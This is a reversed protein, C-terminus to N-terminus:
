KLIHSNCDFILGISSWPWYWLEYVKFNAILICVIYKYIFFTNLPWEPKFVIHSAHKCFIDSWNSGRSLTCRGCWCRRLRSSCRCGCWARASPRGKKSTTTPRYWVLANLLMQFTTKMHKFFCYRKFNHFCCKFHQQINKNSVSWGCCTLLPLQASGSSPTTSAWWM